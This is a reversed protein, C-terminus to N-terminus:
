KMIRVICAELGETDFRLQRDKYRRIEDEKGYSSSILTAPITVVDAKSVFRENFFYEGPSEGLTTNSKTFLIRTEPFESLVALIISLGLHSAYDEKTNCQLFALGQRWARQITAYCDHFMDTGWIPVKSSRCLTRERGPSRSVFLWSGCYGCTPAM